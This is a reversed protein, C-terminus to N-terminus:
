QRRRASWGHGAAAAGVFHRRRRRRRRDAAYNCRGVVTGLGLVDRCFKITFNSRYEM